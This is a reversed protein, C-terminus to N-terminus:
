TKEIKNFNLYRNNFKDIWEEKSFSKLKDVLDELTLAIFFSKKSGLKFTKIYKNITNTCQYNDKPYLIVYDGIDYDNNSIFMSLVLLHDRWLQHINSYMLKNISKDQFLMSDKAIQKYRNTTKVKNDLKIKNPKDYMHESYKVEIGIFGKKGECTDYKVFVDFATRDNTYKIKRRGPSYEFKIETVKEINQNILKKFSNTATKFGKETALEGFLNFALSQSSLLNDWIRPEKILGTSNKVNEEVIDGIHNTLFNAKTDKAFDIPLYNGYEGDTYNIEPYNEKRWIAQLLRANSMFTTDGSVDVKYDIILKNLPKKM